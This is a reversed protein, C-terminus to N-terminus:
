TSTVVEGSGSTVVPLRFREGMVIYSNRRRSPRPISRVHRGKWRREGLVDDILWRLGLELRKELLV